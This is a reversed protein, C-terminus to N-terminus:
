KSHLKKFGQAQVAPRRTITVSDLDLGPTITRKTAKTKDAVKLYREVKDVQVTATGSGQGILEWPGDITTSTYLEYSEAEDDAATDDQVTIKAGAGAPLQATLDLIVYGGEGLSCSVGDKPGLVHPGHTTNATEDPVVAECLRLPHYTGPLETLKVDVRTAAGDGVTIGEIIKEEYGPAWVRLKYTGPLLVRHFDGGKPHSFTPWRPPIAEVFAELPQGAENTVVGCIGKQVEECYYLLAERNQEFVKEIGSFSPNAVEITSDICGSCGYAWDDTDGTIKYWDAGETVDYGNFAAYGESLKLVLDQDPCRVKTYNWVYNVIDGSCHFSLSLSFPINAAHDRVARTEPESFPSGAKYGARFHYGYNRNLDKYNANYRTRKAVGDPNVMPIIWMEVKQVINAIREDTKYNDLIYKTFMIITESSGVENGHHAACFRVMPKFEHVKPNTTIKLGLIPRGKVSTGIQILQCIESHEEAWAKFDEECSEPTHYGKALGNKDLELFAEDLTRKVEIGEAKLASEEKDNLWARAVNDKISDVSIDLKRLISGDQPGRLTLEATFEEAKSSGPALLSLCLVATAVYKM